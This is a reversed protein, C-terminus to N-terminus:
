VRKGVKHKFYDLYAEMVIKMSYKRKLIFKIYRLTNYIFGTMKEFFNQYMRMCYLQNRVMYYQTNDSVTERGSSAGVKHYIVSEPIYYMQYGNKSLRLSYELDEAYLFFSEELTGIKKIVDIPILMMCGTVFGVVRDEDYQGYDWEDFGEQYVMGRKLDIHGGAYWLVSHNYHYYIKGIAAGLNDLKESKSVLQDIFDKEVLTDNNLLLVYDYNHELVYQIGINNGGSFGLNEQLPLYITTNKLFKEIEHDVKTSANDVVVIDFDTVQRSAQNLSEVCEKTDSFTNFNVLIVAVKKKM